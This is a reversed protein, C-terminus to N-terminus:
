IKDFKESVIRPGNKVPFKGMMFAKIQALKKKLSFDPIAAQIFPVFIGISFGAWAINNIVAPSFGERIVAVLIGLITLGIYAFHPYVLSPFNGKIAVKPTISFSSKQGRLVTWLAEIHIWFGSMAFSLARFTFQFNSSLSLNYISLFIYPIFIIALFMTTINVPTLGTFLFVLPLSINVLVVLGSLFFSASSLYQIKQAWTLGKRMVLNYKFIVDLAGRAWRFQQKTYSLFDEPALGESLVEPVYLSKWGKEHIFMGTAFDEAISETCMGGVESLAERSIVMNTGCMTASNMRNKGRCIPGYFLEQQEWAALTTSNLFANKYYQPSQLFGMKPDIFYPITKKLFSKYPVHDADFIVIYPSKTQAVANNINGAKAGGPIERTFCTVGLEKALEEMEMWNDKKAVLGDNLIYIHHNKYDMAIVAEVTERVIDVPEGAVTIFVDVEPEYLPDSKGVHSMDWVTYLYTLSQWTHFIEGLVVLVFLIMTGPTFLTSIAFLYFVSYVATIVILLKSPRASLFATTSPKKMM